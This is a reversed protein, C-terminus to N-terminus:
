RGYTLAVVVFGNCWWVRAVIATAGPIMVVAIGAAGGVLGLFDDPGVQRVGITLFTDFALSPDENVADALPPRDTGFWHNYFSGNVVQISLPNSPTGAAAQFLDAGPNDFDAYVSVTLLGFDHLTSEATVGLFRASAPGGLILVTSSGAILALTTVKM